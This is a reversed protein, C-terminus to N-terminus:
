ARIKPEDAEVRQPRVLCPRSILARLQANQQERVEHRM